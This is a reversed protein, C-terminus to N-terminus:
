EGSAILEKLHIKKRWTRQNFYQVCNEDGSLNVNNPLWARCITFGRYFVEIQSCKNVSIFVTFFEYLFRSSLSLKLATKTKFIKLYNL